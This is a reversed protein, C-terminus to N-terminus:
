KYYFPVGDYSAAVCEVDGNVTSVVVKQLSDVYENRWGAM